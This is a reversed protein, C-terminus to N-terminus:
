HKKESTLGKYSIFVDRLIADIEPDTFVKLTKDSLGSVEKVEDLLDFYKEADLSGEWRSMSNLRHLKRQQKFTIENVEFEGHETKVLM